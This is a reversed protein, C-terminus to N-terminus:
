GLGLTPIENNSSAAGRTSSLPAYFGHEDLLRSTNNVQERQKYILLEYEDM